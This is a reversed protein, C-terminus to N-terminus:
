PAAAAPRACRFGLDIGQGQAISTLPGGRAAATAQRPGVIWSGGRFVLADGDLASSQRCLPDRHVGGSSWCPETQRNWSDDVWEAVNGVVDFIAGGDLELRDRRLLGTKTGVVDPSGPTFVPMCTLPVPGVGSPVLMEWRLLVADPCSPEDSGWVFVRSEFAGAVYEFQAETPLTAGREACHARAGEIPVCNIPFDDYVDPQSTFTCFDEWNGGDHDGTWETAPHSAAASSARYEAVTVEDVDMFFPSLVVLRRLNNADGIGNGRTRPSGMWFAGGAMCAEGEAPPDSCDVRRAGPWSGVHFSEPKGLTLQDADPAVPLGVQDVWLVVGAETVGQEAITPVDVTVDIVSQVVPQLETPEPVGGTQTGNSDYLRLRVRPSVDGELPIGFSAQGSQVSDRDMSFTRTCKACPEGGAVPEVTVLLSDFLPTPEDPSRLKGPAPPLPADTDIYLLLQRPGLPPDSCGAVVLAACL